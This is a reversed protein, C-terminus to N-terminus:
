TENLCISLRFFSFSKSFGLTSIDDLLATGRNSTILGSDRAEKRQNHVKIPLRGTAPVHVTKGDQDKFTQSRIYYTKFEEGPFTNVINNALDIYEPVDLYSFFFIIFILM